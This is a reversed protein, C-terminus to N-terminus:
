AEAPRSKPRISGLEPWCTICCSERKSFAIQGEIGTVFSALRERLLRWIVYGEVVVKHGLIKGLIQGPNPNSWDISIFYDVLESSNLNENEHITCNRMKYIIEGLDFERLEQNDTDFLPFKNGGEPFDLFDIFKRGHNKHNAKQGQSGALSDNLRRAADIGTFLRELCRDEPHGSGMAVDSEYFAKKVNELLRKEKDSMALLREIGVGM